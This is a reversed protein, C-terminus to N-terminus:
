ILLLDIVKQLSAAKTDTSTLTLYFLNARREAASETKVFNQLEDSVVHEVDAAFLLACFTKDTAGSKLCLQVLNNNALFCVIDKHLMQQTFKHCRKKADQKRLAKFTENVVCQEFKQRPIFKENQVVGSFTNGRFQASAGDAGISIKCVHRKWDEREALNFGNNIFFTNMTTCFKNIASAPGKEKEEEEEKEESSHNKPM